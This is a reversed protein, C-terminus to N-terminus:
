MMLCWGPQFSSCIAGPMKRQVVGDPRVKVAMGSVCKTHAGLRHTTAPRGTRCCAQQQGRAYARGVTTAARCGFSSPRSRTSRRRSLQHTMRYSCRVDGGCWLGKGSTQGGPDSIAPM